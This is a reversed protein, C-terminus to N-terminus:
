NDCNIFSNELIMYVSSIYIIKSSYIPSINGPFTIPYNNLKLLVPFNDDMRLVLELLTIHSWYFNSLNSKKKLENIKNKNNVQIDRRM